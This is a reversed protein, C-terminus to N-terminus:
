SSGCCIMWSVRGESVLHQPRGVRAKSRVQGALGSTDGRALPRSRRRARFIASPIRARLRYSYRSRKGTLLCARAFVPRPPLSQLGCIRARPYDFGRPRAIVGDARNVGSRQRPWARCCTTRSRGDVRGGQAGPAVCIRSNRLTPSPSSLSGYSNRESVGSIQPNANGRRLSDQGRGLWRRQQRNCSTSGFDCRATVVARSPTPRRMWWRWAFHM